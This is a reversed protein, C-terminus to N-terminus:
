SSALRPRLLVYTARFAFCGPDDTLRTFNSSIFAESGFQLLLFGASRLRAACNVGSEATAFVGANLKNKASFFALTPLAQLGVEAIGSGHAGLSSIDGFQFLSAFLDGRLLRAPLSAFGVVFTTTSSCRAWCAFSSCARLSRPLFVSAPSSHRNLLGAVTLRSRALSDRRRLLIARRFRRGFRAFSHSPGRLAPPVRYAAPLRRTFAAAGKYASPFRANALTGCCRFARPAGERDPMSAPVRGSIADSHRVAAPHAVNFRSPSPADSPVSAAGDGVAPHNQRVPQLAIARPPRLM